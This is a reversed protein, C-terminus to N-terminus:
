KPPFIRPPVPDPFSARSRPPFFPFRRKEISAFSGGARSPPNLPPGQRLLVGFVPSSPSLYLFINTPFFFTKPAPAPDGGGYGLFGFLPYLFPGAGDSDEATHPLDAWLLPFSASRAGSFRNRLQSFFPSKIWPPTVEFFLTFTQPSGDPPLPLNAWAPWAITKELSM